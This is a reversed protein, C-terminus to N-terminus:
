PVASDITILINKEGIKVKGSGGQLDGSQPMANGSKSVRSLVEVEPFNSLKLQAMMAMDDTLTFKFPLDKVQKEIIALPMKTGNLARAYVFVKDSPSAKSVLSPSLVVEGSVSASVTASKNEGSAFDALNDLKEEARAGPTLRNRAENISMSIDRADESDPPLQKLLKEWYNVAGAFDKREFAESGALMLVKANNADVALAQKILEAPKGELRRNNVMAQADAYDALLRADAPLLKVANEFANVADSFRGIEAYSHALLAWGAGDEPSNQLHTALKEVLPNLQGGTAHGMEPAAVAPQPVVAQPSGLKLYLLVATLPVVVLLAAALPLNRGATTSVDKAQADALMRRELERRSEDYQESNLAGNNLDRELEAFQERYLAVNMAAHEGRINRYMGLLPPLLFALAVYILGALSFWFVTM